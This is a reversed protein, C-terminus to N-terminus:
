TREDAGIFRVLKVWKSGGVGKEFDRFPATQDADRNGTTSKEFSALQACRGEKFPAKRRDWM